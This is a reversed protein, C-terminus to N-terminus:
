YRRGDAGDAAFTPEGLHALFYPQDDGCVLEEDVRLVDAPLAHQQSNDPM